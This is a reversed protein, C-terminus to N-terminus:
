GLGTSKTAGKQIGVTPTQVLAEDSQMENTRSQQKGSELEAKILAQLPKQKKPDQLNKIQEESLGAGVTVQPQDNHTTTGADVGAGALLNAIRESQRQTLNENTVIRTGTHAWQIGTSQNLFEVTESPTLEPM